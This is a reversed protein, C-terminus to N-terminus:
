IEVRMAAELVCNFLLPSLVDGQRVGRNIPFRIDDGVIGVQNKYITRLLKCYGDSVGQARLANFFKSQEVGDFAKRLDVSVMWLDSNFELSRSIINEAFILTKSHIGPDARIWM